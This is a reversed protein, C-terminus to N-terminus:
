QAVQKAYSEFAINLIRKNLKLHKMSPRNEILRKLSGRVTRIAGSHKDRAHKALEYAWIDATQLPNLDYKDNFQCPGIGPWGHERLIKILASLEGMHKHGSEIAFSVQRHGQEKAITALTGMCIFACTTYQSFEWWAPRYANFEKEPITCVGMGGCSHKVVLDILRHHLKDAETRSRGEFQRRLHALEVAHFYDIGFQTLESKWRRSLKGVESREYLMGAVCMEPASDDTGAEDIYAALMVYPGPFFHLLHELAFQQGDEENAMAFDLPYRTEL